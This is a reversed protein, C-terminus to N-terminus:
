QKWSISYIVIEKYGSEKETLCYLKGNKVLAYVGSEDHLVNLSIRYIFIGDANFIDYLYEGPNEGKEYTKVFLRGEDDSYLSHFAPMSDPFYIKNRIDKFLPREFPEMFKKKFTESVPVPKYEKKIKQKLQGEFDYVYIEYGREQFGTFIKGKSVSSSLIHYSAKLRKGVIPNPIKQRDLVKIEEFDSNQLVLPNDNIYDGTASMARIYSFYNGNSLPTSFITESDLKFEKIYDGENNFIILKNGFDSVAINGKETIALYLSTFNRGQLEGPGQGKRAFSRIFSGANDFKFIMSEKNEYNNLFINGKSDVAFYVGIDTLGVEAMEDLESDITFEKELTLKTPESEIIYPEIHNIVVEVGDEMIKEVENQDSSCSLLSLFVLTFLIM